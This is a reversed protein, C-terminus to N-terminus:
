QWNVIDKKSMAMEVVIAFLSTWREKTGPEHLQNRGFADDSGETMSINFIFPLAASQSGGGLDDGARVLAGVAAWKVQNVKIVNLQDHTTIVPYTQSFKAAVSNFNLNTGFRSQWLVVEPLDGPALNGVTKLPYPKSTADILNGVRVLAAFPPHNKFATLIAQYVATYPDTNIYPGSAM